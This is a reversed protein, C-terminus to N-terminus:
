SLEQMLKILAQASHTWTQNERLWAAGREAHDRAERRNEYCWAMHAAVEDVDPVLWTSGRAMNSQQVTQAEVIRTAWQDIGVMLGTNRSVITPLGSMVAERPPMGWGEGFSPFVFCDVQAFVDAMTQTDERWVTVRRDNFQVAASGFLGGERTKIVLRVDPYQAAPFARYFASYVQEVGKRAGRDGLALFTYADRTRYPLLPFEDPATGGHIVHIPVRVRHAKFLAANQECPVILRECVQNIHAAWKDPIGAQTEYMTLGWVRGAMPAFTDATGCQITVREADVGALRRVWGPTRLMDILM